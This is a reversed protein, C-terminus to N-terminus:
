RYVEDRPLRKWRSWYTALHTPLRAAASVELVMAAAARAAAARARATEAAATEAGAAEAAAAEGGGTRM